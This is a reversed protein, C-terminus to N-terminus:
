HSRRMRQLWFLLGLGGLMLAWEAPEPAQTIEAVESISGSYSTRFPTNGTSLQSLNHNPAAFQFSVDLTGPQNAVMALLDQNTGSYSINNLNVQLEANLSGITPTFTSVTELDVTGTLYGSGDFITLVGTTSGLLVNASQTTGVTTIAGYDFVTGAAPAISGNLGVSDGILGGQVDTITWQAGTYIGSTAPNFQFSGVAGAPSNNATGNFQITSGTDNSFDWVLQAHAANISLFVTLFPWCIGPVNKFIKNM